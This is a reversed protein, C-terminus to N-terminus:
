SPRQESATLKSEGLAAEWTFSVTEDFGFGSSGGSVATGSSRKPTAKARLRVRQRQSWWGPLKLGIGADTLLAVRDRVFEIVADPTLDIGSPRAANLLGSLEPALRAVRGLGHLLEAVAGAPFPSDADWLRAADVILSPEDSDQVLVDIRWSTQEDAPESLRLVVRTRTQSAAGARIWTTLSEAFADVKAADLRARLHPDDSTLAELWAEAVTRRGSKKEILRTGRLRMRMRM